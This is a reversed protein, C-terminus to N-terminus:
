RRSDKKRLTNAKLRLIYRSNVSASVRSCKREQWWCAQSYKPPTTRWTQTSLALTATKLRALPETTKLDMSVDTM